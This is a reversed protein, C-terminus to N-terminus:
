SEDNEQYVETRGQTQANERNQRYVEPNDGYSFPNASDTINWVKWPIDEDLVWAYYEPRFVRIVVNWVIGTITSTVQVIWGPNVSKPLISFWGLFEVSGKGVARRISATPANQELWRLLQERRRLIM